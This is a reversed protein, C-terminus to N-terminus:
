SQSQALVRAKTLLFLVKEELQQYDLKLAAPSIWFVIDVGGVFRQRNLRLVEGVQRRVRNRVVAKKSLKGSTVIAFRSNVLNNKVIKLRFEPSFFSRGLSNARKFDQEKTLRYQKALMDLTLLQHKPGHGAFSWLSIRKRKKNRRRKLVNKGTPSSARNRFGHKKKAKRVKPQYTRKPM